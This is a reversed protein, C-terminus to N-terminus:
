PIAMTVHMTSSQFGGQAPDCDVTAIVGLGAGPYADGAWAELSGALELLVWTDTALVAAADQIQGPTPPRGKASGVPVCRVVQVDMVATRPGECRQPASAEDGPPGVYTQILCVTVQECDHSTNGTTWYRREPLEVGYRSFGDVLRELVGDMMDVISRADQALGPDSTLTM